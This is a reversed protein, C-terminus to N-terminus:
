GTKKAASKDPKGDTGAVEEFECGNFDGSANVVHTWGDIGVIPVVGKEGSTFAHIERTFPNLRYQEAVICFAAVEENTAQRGSRDPKIVTGRLVEILKGPEIQFRQGMAVLPSTHQVVAPSDKM